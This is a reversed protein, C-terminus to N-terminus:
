YEVNESAEKYQKYYNNTYRISAKVSPEVCQWLLDHPIFKDLIACSWCSGRFSELFKSKITIRFMETVITIEDRRKCCRYDNLSYCVKTLWGELDDTVILVDIM